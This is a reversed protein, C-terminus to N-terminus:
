DDEMTLGMPLSLSKSHDPMAAGHDTRDWATRWPRLSLQIVAGM